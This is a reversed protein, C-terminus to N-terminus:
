YDVMDGDDSCFSDEDDLVVRNPKFNSTTKRNHIITSLCKFNEFEKPIKLVANRGSGLPM